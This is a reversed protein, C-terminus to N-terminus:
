EEEKKKKKMMAEATELMETVNVNIKKMQKLNSPTLHKPDVEGKRIREALANGYRETADTHKFYPGVGKDYFYNANTCNKFVLNMMVQEPFVCHPSLIPFIDNKYHSVRAFHNQDDWQWHKTLAVGNEEIAPGPCGKHTKTKKAFRIIQIDDPHKNATKLVAAHNIEKVFELDHQLIYMYKTDSHFNKVVRKLNNALGINKGSVFIKVHDYDGNKSGSFYSYLNQLYEDYKDRNEPTDGM